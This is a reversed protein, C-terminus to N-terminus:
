LESLLKAKERAFEDDTLAGSKHLEALKEVKDLTDGSSRSAAAAAQAPRAPVTLSPPRAGSGAAYAGMIADPKEPEGGFAAVAAPAEPKVRTPAAQSPSGSSLEGIAARLGGGIVFLAPVLGGLLFCGGFILGFTSAGSSANQDFAVTIAGAGIATFIGPIILGGAGSLLAGVVTAFIGGMLMGIWAGTGAPCYPVPGYNASYGTSSCTGTRILHHMGFGALVAAFLLLAVGVIMRNSPRLRGLAV